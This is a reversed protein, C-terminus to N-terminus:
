PRLFEAAHGGWARLDEIRHAVKMTAGPILSALTEATSLPHGPDEAWALILVPLRLREMSEKTPLDSAGVGRLLPALLHEDVEVPFTFGPTAQYPAPLPAAALATDLATAGNEDVLDALQTYATAQQPRTGWATPPATLVLRDFRHPALVAAHLLTATGLSLGIGAAPAHPSVVDLLTLLDQALNPFRFDAATPRAASRGHGRADYRVLRRGAAAVPDWDFGGSSESALSSGCLPHAWVAAPGGGAETWALRAGPVATEHWLRADPAPTGHTLPAEAAATEHALRTGPVASEQPVRSGPAVIGHSPRSGSVTSEHELLRAHTRNEDSM